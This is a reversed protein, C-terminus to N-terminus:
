ISGILPNKPAASLADESPTLAPLCLRISKEPEYHCHSQHDKQTAWLTIPAIAVIERINRECQGAETQLSTPFVATKTRLSKLDLSPLFNSVKTQLTM